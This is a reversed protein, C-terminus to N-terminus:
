QIKLHYKEWHKNSGLIPECLFIFDLVKLFFILYVMYNDALSVALM